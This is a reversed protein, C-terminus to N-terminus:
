ELREMMKDVDTIWIYKLRVQKSDKSVKPDENSDLILSRRAPKLNTTPKHSDFWQVHINPSQAQM